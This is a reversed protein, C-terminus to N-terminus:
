DSAKIYVTLSLAILLGLGGCVYTLSIGTWENIGYALGALLFLVATLGIAGLLLKQIIKDVMSDLVERIEGNEKTLENVVTDKAAGLLQKGIAVISDAM